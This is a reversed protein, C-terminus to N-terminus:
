LCVMLLRTEISDLRPRECVVQLMRTAKAFYILGPYEKGGMIRRASYLEGIAFVVWLKSKLFGDIADPNGMAQDLQSWIRSKQLVHYQQNVAKLTANLFLRAKSLTPWPCEVDSLSRIQEDTPFNSRPIHSHMTNSITQSVRTAFGLDAPEGILIPTHPINIDIYWPTQEVFAGSVPPAPASM